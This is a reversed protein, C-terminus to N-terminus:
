RLENITISTTGSKTHAAHVGYYDFPGECQPDTASILLGRSENNSSTSVSAAFAIFADNLGTNCIWHRDTSTAVILTSSSGVVAVTSSSSRYLVAADGGLVNGKKNLNLVGLVVVVALTLVWLILKWKQSWDDTKIVENYRLDGVKKEM